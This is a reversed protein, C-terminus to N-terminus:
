HCMIYEWEAKVVLQLAVRHVEVASDVFSNVVQYCYKKLYFFVHEKHPLRFFNM